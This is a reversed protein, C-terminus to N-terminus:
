KCYSQVTNRELEVLATGERLAQQQEELKKKRVRRSKKSSVFSNDRKAQEV